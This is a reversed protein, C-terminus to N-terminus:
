SSDAFKAGTPGGRLKARSKLLHITRRLAPIRGNQSALRWKTGRKGLNIQGHLDKTEEILM